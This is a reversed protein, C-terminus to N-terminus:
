YVFFAEVAYDHMEFLDILSQLVLKENDVIMLRAKAM